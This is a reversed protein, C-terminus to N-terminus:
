VQYFEKRKRYQKTKLALKLCKEVGDTLLMNHFTYGTKKFCKRETRFFFEWLKNEYIKGM